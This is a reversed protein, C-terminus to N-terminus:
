DAPAELYKELLELDEERMCDADSVVLVQREGLMPRTEAHALIEGLRTRELSVRAVAFGRAEAPVNELIIAGRREERLYADAGLLLYVLDRSPGHAKRPAM